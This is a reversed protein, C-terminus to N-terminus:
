FVLMRVSNSAIRAVPEWYLGLILTPAALLALM